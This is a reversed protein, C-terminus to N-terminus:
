KNLTNNIYNANTEAQPTIKKSSNFVKVDNPTGNTYSPYISSPQNNLCIPPRIGQPYWNEPPMFSYGYEYEQSTYGATLPIGNYDSYSYSYPLDDDILNSNSLIGPIQWSTSNINNTRNTEEKKISQPNITLNRVINELVQIRETPTPIANENNQQNQINVSSSPTIEQNTTSQNNSKNQINVSSMQTVEQNNKQDECVIKCKREISCSDCNESEFGETTSVTKQNMTNSYIFQTVFILIMIIVTTIIATTQGMNIFPTYRLLLYILVAQLIYILINYFINLNIM